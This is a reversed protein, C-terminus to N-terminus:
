NLKKQSEIDLYAPRNNKTTLFLGIGRTMILYIPLIFNASVVKVSVAFILVYFQMCNGIKEFRM